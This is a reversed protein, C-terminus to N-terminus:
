RIHGVVYSSKCGRRSPVASGRVSDVPCAVRAYPGTFRVPRAPPTSIRVERGPSESGPQDCRLSLSSASSSTRGGAAVNSGFQASLDDDALRATQGDTENFVVSDLLTSVSMRADEAATLKM